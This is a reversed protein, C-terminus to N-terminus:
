MVEFFYGFGTVDVEEILDTNRMSTFKQFGGIHRDSFDTKFTSKVVPRIEALVKLFVAFGGGRFVPGSQTLPLPHFIFTLGFFEHIKRVILFYQLKPNMVMGWIQTNGFRPKGSQKRREM